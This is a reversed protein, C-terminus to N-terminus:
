LRAVPQHDQTHKIAPLQFDVARGNRRPALRFVEGSLQDFERLIAINSAQTVTDLANDCSHGGDRRRHVIAAQARFFRAGEDAHEFAVSFGNLCVIESDAKIAEFGL